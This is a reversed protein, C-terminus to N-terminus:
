NIASAVESVPGSGSVEVTGNETVVGQITRRSQENLISVLDGKGGDGLARGRASLTLGPKRFIITVLQGREILRPPEVDSTAIQEGARLARKAAMEYLEHPDLIAMPSLRRREIRSMRIDSAHIVDRRDVPRALTPIEITEIARGQVRIRTDGAGIDIDLEADFRGSGNQYILESVVVPASSSADANIPKIDGDFTLSVNDTAVGMRSGLADRLLNTMRDMDVIVSQRVVSVSAFNPEADIALGANRAAALAQAAPLAGNVGVPPARFVPQAALDGADFFLDGLTVIDANVLVSQRLTAANASSQAILGAAALALVVAIAFRILFLRTM